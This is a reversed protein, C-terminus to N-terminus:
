CEAETVDREVGVGVAPRRPRPEAVDAPEGDGRWSTPLILCCSPRRGVEVQKGM